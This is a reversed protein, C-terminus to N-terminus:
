QKKTLKFRVNLDVKKGTNNSKIRIKYRKGWVSFEEDLGLKVKDLNEFYSNLQETENYNIFNDKLNPMIHILKTFKKELDYKMPMQEIDFSEVELVNMEIGKKLKIRYIKSPNSPYGLFNLTRFLYYYDKDFAINQSFQATTSIGPRSAEAIKANAFDELSKPRNEIRFIEFVGKDEMFAHEPKKYQSTDYIKKIFEQDEDRFGYYDMFERGHELHFYFDVRNKIKDCSTHVFPALQIPPLVTITKKTLEVEVVKYSPSMKFTATKDTTNVETCTIQSGYVLVFASIVYTYTQGLKVQTDYYDYIGYKSKTPDEKNFSTADRLWISQISDGTATEGAFKEMKVYLIENKVQEKNLVSTISPLDEVLRKNYERRAMAKYLNETYRSRLLHDPLYIIGNDKPFYAYDLLDEMSSVPIETVAGTETDFDKETVDFSINTKPLNELISISSKHLEFRDLLTSNIDIDQFNLEINIAFPFWNKESEGYRQADKALFINRLREIEEVQRPNYSANLISSNNFFNRGKIDSTFAFSDKYRDNENVEKSLYFNPLQIESYNASFENYEKAIYNFRDYFEFYPLGETEAGLMEEKELPTFILTDHYLFSKGVSFFAQLESEEITKTDYGVVVTKSNTTQEIISETQYDVDNSKLFLPKDSNKIIKGKYM